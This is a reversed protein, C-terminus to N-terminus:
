VLVFGLTMTVVYRAIRSVNMGLEEVTWHSCGLEEALQDRGPLTERWRGEAMGQRLLDTVQDTLSSFLLGSRICRFPTLFVSLFALANANLFLIIQIFVRTAHMLVHFRM